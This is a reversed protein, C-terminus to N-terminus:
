RRLVFLAPRDTRAAVAAPARAPLGVAEARRRPWRASRPAACVAALDDIRTLIAM